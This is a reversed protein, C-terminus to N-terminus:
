LKARFIWFCETHKYRLNLISYICTIPSIQSIHSDLFSSFYSHQPWVKLVFSSSSAWLFSCWVFGHQLYGLWVLM